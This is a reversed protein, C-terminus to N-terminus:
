FAAKLTVQYSRPTLYQPANAGGGDASTLAFQNSGAILAKGKMGTLFQKNALNLV